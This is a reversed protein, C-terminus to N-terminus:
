DDEENENNMDPWVYEDVAANLIDDEHPRLDRLPDDEPYKLHWREDDSGRTGHWTFADGGRHGAQERKGRGM